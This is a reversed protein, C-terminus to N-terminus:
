SGILGTIHLLALTARLVKSASTSMMLNPYVSLGDSRPPGDSFSPSIVVAMGGGVPGVADGALGALLGPISSGRSEAMLRLM